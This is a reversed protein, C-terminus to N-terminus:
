YAPATAALTNLAQDLAPPHSKLTAAQTVLEAASKLIDRLATQAAGNEARFKEVLASKQRIATGLEPLGASLASSPTRQVAASLNELAKGAAAARNPAPLDTAAFESRARVIDLDWRSDIEKLERLFGLIENQQRLDIAQTKDYLFALVAALVAAGICLLTTHLAESKNM